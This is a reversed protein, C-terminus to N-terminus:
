TIRHLPLACRPHPCAQDPKAKDDGQRKEEDEQLGNERRQRVFGEAIGECMPGIHRCVGAQGAKEALTLRALLEAAPDQAAAHAAVAISAPCDPSSSAIM